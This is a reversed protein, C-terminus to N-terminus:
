DEMPKDLSTNSSLIPMDSSMTYSCIKFYDLIRQFEDIQHQNLYKRWKGIQKHRDSEVGNKDAESSAMRILKGFESSHIYEPNLNWKAGIEDLVSIPNAVFSEYHVVIGPLKSANYIHSNNMCYIAFETTIEDTLSDFLNRNKKYQLDSFLFPKNYVSTRLIKFRRYQSILTAAPHRVLIIPKNILALSNIQGPLLRNARVTKILLRKHRSLLPVLSQNKSYTWYNHAKGRFVLDIKKNIGPFQIPRDGFQNGIVGRQPHLPEWCIFAGLWHALLEMLWTSGGRAESYLVFINKDQFSILNKHTFYIIKGLVLENIVLLYRRIRKLFSYLIATLSSAPNNFFTYDKSSDM